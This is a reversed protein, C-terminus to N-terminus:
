PNRDQQGPQQTQRQGKEVQGVGRPWNGIVRGALSPMALEMVLRSTCANPATTSDSGPVNMATMMKRRAQTAVRMEVSNKALTSVRGASLAASFAWVAGAVRRM